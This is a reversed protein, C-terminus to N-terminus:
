ANITKVALMTAVVRTTVADTRAFGKKAFVVTEAAQTRRVLSFANMRLVANGLSATPITAAAACARTRSAVSVTKVSVMKVVGKAAVTKL